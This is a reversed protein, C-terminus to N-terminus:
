ARPANRKRLLWVAVLEFLVAAAIAVGTRALDKGLVGAAKAPEFGQSIPVPGREGGGFPSGAGQLFPPMSGSSQIEDLSPAIQGGNEDARIKLLWALGPSIGTAFSMSFQSEVLVYLGLALAVSLALVTVTKITTQM